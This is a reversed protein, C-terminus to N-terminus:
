KKVEKLEVGYTSEYNAKQTSLARILGAILTTPIIIQVEPEISVFGFERMEDYQDETIKGPLRGCILSFDQPSSGVEVHNVYYTSVGDLPELRINVPTREGVQGPLAPHNDDAM